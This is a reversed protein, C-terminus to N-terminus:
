GSSAVPVWIRGERFGGGRQTSTASTPGGSSGTNRLLPSSKLRGQSLHDAPAFRVGAVVGRLVQCRIARTVCVCNGTEAERGFNQM